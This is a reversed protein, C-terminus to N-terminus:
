QSLYAFAYGKTNKYKGKCCKSISSEDLSYYKAAESASVFVKKDNLCVIPKGFSKKYKPCLGLMYGKRLYRKVTNKSVKYKQMLSYRSIFPTSCYDKCISLLLNNQSKLDYERWDISSLDFLQSLASCCIQHRLYEIDSYDADIRIVEINHERALSDKYRDTDLDRKSNDGNFSRKGHGLSGDMEIIYSSSDHEFYFDYRKPSIWKPSYEAEFDVELENLVAYMVKNPYSFGDSCINCALGFTTVSTVSKYLRNGCNPCIFWKKSKCHESCNIADNPNELLCAVDPRTNFLNYKSLSTKVREEKACEPCCYKKYLVSGLKGNWTCHHIDCEYAISDVYGYSGSLAHIHPHGKLQFKKDIEEKSLYLRKNM